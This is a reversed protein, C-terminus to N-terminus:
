FSYRLAVPILCRSPNLGNDDVINETGEVSPNYTFEPTTTGVAFQDFNVLQGQNFNSFPGVGM